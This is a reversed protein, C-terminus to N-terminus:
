LTLLRIQCVTLLLLLLLLQVNPCKAGNTIDTFLEQHPTNQIMERTVRAHRDTRGDTQKTASKENRM